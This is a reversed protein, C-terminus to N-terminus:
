AQSEAFGCAFSSAFRKRSRADAVTSNQRGSVGSTNQTRVGLAASRQRARICGRLYFEAAIKGAATRLRLLRRRHASFARGRATPGRHAITALTPKRQPGSQGLHPGAPLPPPEQDGGPEAQRDLNPEQRDKNPVFPQPERCRPSESRD